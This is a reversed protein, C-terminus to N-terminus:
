QWQYMLKETNGIMLGNQKMLIVLPANMESNLVSEVYLSSFHFFCMAFFMNERYERFLQHLSCWFVLM